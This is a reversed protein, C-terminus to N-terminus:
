WCDSFFALSRPGRARKQASGPRVFGRTRSLFFTLLCKTIFGKWLTMMLIMLDFQLSWDRIYCRDCPTREVLSTDDRWESKWGTIGSKM